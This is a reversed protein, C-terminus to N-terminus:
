LNEEIIEKKNNIYGILTNRKLKIKKYKKDTILNGKSDLIQYKNDKKILIYEGLKKIKDFEYDFIIEGKLNCLSYKGEKKLIYTDYLPKITDYKCKILTNNSTDIIGYYGNLKVIFLDQSIKQFSKYKIPVIINDQLDIIGYKKDVMVLLKNPTLEMMKTYNRKSILQGDETIIKYKKSKNVLFYHKKNYIVHKIDNCNEELITGDSKIISYKTYTRSTGDSYHYITTQSLLSFKNCNIFPQTDQSFQKDIVYRSCSSCHSHYYSHAFACSNIFLISFLVFLCVISKKM